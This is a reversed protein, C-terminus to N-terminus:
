AAVLPVELNPVRAVGCHGENKIWCTYISLYILDVVLPAITTTDITSFKAPLAKGVRM